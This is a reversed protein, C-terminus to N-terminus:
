QLYYRGSLMSLRRIESSVPSDSLRELIPQAADVAVPNASTTRQEGLCNDFYM